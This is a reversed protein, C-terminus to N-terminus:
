QDKSQVDSVKVQPITMSVKGATVFRTFKEKPEKFIWNGWEVDGAELFAAALRYRTYIRFSLYGETHVCPYVGGAYPNTPLQQKQAFFFFFWSFFCVFFFGCVYVCVCFFVGPM